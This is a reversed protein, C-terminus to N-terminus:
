WYLGKITTMMFQNLILYGDVGHSDIQESHWLKGKRKTQQIHYKILLEVPTETEHEWNKTSDPNAWKNKTEKYKNQNNWARYQTHRNKRELRLGQFMNKVNSWSDQNRQNIKPFSWPLWKLMRM